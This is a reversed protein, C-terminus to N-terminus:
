TYDKKREKITEYVEDFSKKLGARSFYRAINRVDREFFERARPHDRLVAQGIDIFYVKDQWYMLNYESIDAHVLDAKYFLKCVNDIVQEFVAELEEESFKLEKLTPAAKKDGIFSMVLVNNKFALPLPVTARAKSARELNKFEKQAWAFIISRRDPKVNKFRHDGKLYNTMNKFDSTTIKYIKVAKPQNAKDVARFVHAEKGTSVVHELINFWKKTALFHVTNLTSQDFVRGFVKRDAESKFYAKESEKKVM